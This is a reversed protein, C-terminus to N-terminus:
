KEQQPGCREMWDAIARDNFDESKRLASIVKARREPPHNQNLKLKGELSDLEIRFAVVGKALQKYFDSATDFRWPRVRPQEYVDVSRELLSLTQEPDHIAHFTGYAHVSVYNWTPVTNPTEYWTPSIYAHPGSFVAMVRQGEASKWQQNARATHGWLTGVGDATQEALLPLHTAFPAGGVQSILLAFSFERMIAFLKRPDKEVFSEPIYM